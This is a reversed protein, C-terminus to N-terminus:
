GMNVGNVRHRTAIGAICNQSSFTDMDVRELFEGSLDLRHNRHIGYGYHRVLIEAIDLSHIAGLHTVFEPIKKAEHRYIHFCCHWVMIADMLLEYKRPRTLVRTTKWAKGELFPVGVYHYQPGKSRGRHSWDRCSMELEGADQVEYYLELWRERLAYIHKPLPGDNLQRNWYSTLSSLNSGYLSSLETSRSPTTIHVKLLWMPLTFLDRVPRELTEPDGISYVPRIDIRKLRADTDQTAKVLTEIRQTHPSSYDLRYQEEFIKPIAEILVRTTGRNMCEQLYDSVYLLTPTCYHTSEHDDFFITVRRGSPGVLIAVDFAGSISPM